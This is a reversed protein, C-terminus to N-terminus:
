WLKVTWFDNQDIRSSANGCELAGGANQFVVAELFDNSSTVVDIATATIRQSFNSVGTGKFGAASGVATTSNKFFRLYGTQATATAFNVTAGVLWVGTSQYSIRTPNSVTSHLSSADFEESNFTLATETTNPISQTSAHFLRCRPQGNNTVVGSFTFAGGVTLSGAITSNGAVSLAGGIVVGGGITSGGTVSLNAVTSNSSNLPATGQLLGTEIAVIEANPDNFFVDTIVDGSNRTPFSKVSGPYSAPM